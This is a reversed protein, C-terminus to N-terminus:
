GREGCLLVSDVLEVLMDEVEDLERTEECLLIGLESLLDASEASVCRNHLYKSNLLQAGRHHEHSQHAKGTGVGHYKGIEGQTRQRQSNERAKENTCTRTSPIFKANLDGGAQGREDGCGLLLMGFACERRRKM